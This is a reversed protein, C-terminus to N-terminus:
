VYIAAELEDAFAEFQEARPASARWLLGIHRKLPADLDLMHVDDGREIESRVYLGPFLAIGMGIAVMQRLADLSSGEFEDMVRAGHERALEETFAQLTHGGSLTLMDQGSLMSRPLVNRNAFPHDSAVGLRVPDELLMHRAMWAEDPGPKPTATGLVMDYRGDRLGLTLQSARDERIHMQLQSHRDHLLRLVPPLLYPGVTPLVGIRMLGGFGDHTGRAADMLDNVERLVARARAVVTEGLPTPQVGNRDILAGGLNDELTRIQQSLTPQTVNLRRAAESFRGTDLVTVLAHLQKLTPQRM